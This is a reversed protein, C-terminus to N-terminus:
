GIKKVRPVFSIIPVYKVNGTKVPVNKSEQYMKEVRPVNKVNGINMPVNKSEQDIKNLNGIKKVRPM